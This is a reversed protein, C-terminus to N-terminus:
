LQVLRINSSSLVCSLFEFKCVQPDDILVLCQCVNIADTATPRSMFVSVLIELLQNRLRASDILTLVVRFAYRLMGERDEAQTLAKKFIDLRFVLSIVAPWQM